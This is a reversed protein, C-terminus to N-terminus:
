SEGTEEGSLAAMVNVEADAIRGCAERYQPALDNGERACDDLGDAIAGAPESFTGSSQVSMADGLTTAAYTGNNV